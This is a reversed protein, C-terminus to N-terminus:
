SRRLLLALHGKLVIIPHRVEGSLEAYHLRGKIHVLGDSGIVPDLHYLTSRPVAKGSELCELDKVFM